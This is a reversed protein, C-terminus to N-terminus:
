KRVRYAAALRRRARHLRVSASAASIGLAGALKVGRLGELAALEIVERDMPAVDDLAAALPEAAERLLLDGDLSARQVTRDSAVKQIAEARRRYSRLANRAHNQAVGMLWAVTTGDPIEDFRRWAVEFTLAVIDGSDLTPYRAAIFREVSHYHACFIEEFRANRVHEDFASGMVGRLPM